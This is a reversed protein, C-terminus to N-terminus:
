PLAAGEGWVYRTMEVGFGCQLSCQGKLPLPTEEAQKAAPAETLILM